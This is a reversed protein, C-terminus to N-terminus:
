KLLRLKRAEALAANVGTPAASPWSCKDLHGALLKGVRELEAVKRELLNAHRAAAEFPDPRTAENAARPPLDVPGDERDVRWGKESAHAALISIVGPSLQVMPAGRTEGSLMARAVEGPFRYDAPGVRLIAEGSWDSNHNLYAETGDALKITKTHM